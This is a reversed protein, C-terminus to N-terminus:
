SIWFNINIQGPNIITELVTGGMTYQINKFLYMMANNILAVEQDNNYVDAINDTNRRLQGEIILYSESPLIFNDTANINIDISNSNNNNSQTNPTFRVVKWKIISNDERPLELIDLCKDIEQVFDTM